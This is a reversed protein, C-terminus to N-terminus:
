ADSDNVDDDQPERTSELQTALKTLLEPDDVQLYTKTDFFSKMYNSLNALTDTPQVMIVFLNFAPDKMNEIYCHTFEEKGWLSDVFGQSMVIIANNSSNIGEEINDKIGRGPIFDRSHIFLKFNKDEELAPVLDNVVFGPDSDFHYIIFADFERNRPLLPEDIRKLGANLRNKFSVAIIALLIALPILIVPLVVALPHTTATTSFSCKPATSWEGNYLCYIINHGELQFEENCSYEVTDM